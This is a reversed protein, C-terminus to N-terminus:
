AFHWSYEVIKYVKGFVKDFLCIENMYLDHIGLICIM